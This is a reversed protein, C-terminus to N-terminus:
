VSKEHRTTKSTIITCVDLAGSNKRFAYIELSAKSSRYRILVETFQLSKRESYLTDYTVLLQMRPVCM